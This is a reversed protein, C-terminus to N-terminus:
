NLSAKGVPQVFFVCWLLVGFLDFCTVFTGLLFGFNYSHDLSVFCGLVGVWCCSASLVSVESLTNDEMPVVCGSACGCCFPFCCLCWFRDFLVILVILFFVCLCLLFLKLLLTPPLSSKLLQFCGFCFMPHEKQFQLISRKKELSQHKQQKPETALIAICLVVPVVLLSPLSHCASSSYHLTVFCCVFLCALLCVFLCFVCCCFCCCRRRRHRRCCCCVTDAVGAAFGIVAALMKLLFPMPPFLDRSEAWRARLRGLCFVFWSLFSCM